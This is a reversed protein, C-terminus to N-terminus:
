VVEFYSWNWAMFTFDAILFGIMVSHHFPFEGELALIFSAFVMLLGQPFLIVLMGFMSNRRVLFWAAAILLISLIWPPFSDVNFGVIFLPEGTVWCLLSWLFSGVLLTFFTAARQTPM